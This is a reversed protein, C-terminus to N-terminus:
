RSVRDYGKAKLTANAEASMLFELLQRGAEGAGASAVGTMVINDQLEPPLPGVYDAGVVRILDITQSVAIQAEGRAVVIM